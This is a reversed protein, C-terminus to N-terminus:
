DMLSEFDAFSKPAGGQSPLLGYMNRLSPNAGYSELMKTMPINGCSYHLATNGELNQVNVIKDRGRAAVYEAVDLHQNMVAIMLATNGEEDKSVSVDMLKTGVVQTVKFLKGERAGQFLQNKLMMLLEAGQMGSGGGMVGSTARTTSESAHQREEEQGDQGEEDEEERVVRDKGGKNQRYLVGRKMKKKKKKKKKDIPSLSNNKYSGPPSYRTVDAPTPSYSGLGDENLDLATNVVGGTGDILKVLKREMDFGMASNPRREACGTSLASHVEAGLSAM